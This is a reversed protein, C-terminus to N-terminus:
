DTTLVKQMQSAGSQIVNNFLQERSAVAVWRSENWQAFPQGDLVGTYFWRM